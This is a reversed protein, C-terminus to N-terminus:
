IGTRIEVIKGNFTELVKQIVPNHEADPPSKKKGFQEPRHANIKKKGATGVISLNVEQQLFESCIRRLKKETEAEKIQDLYFSGAPFEIRMEKNDLIEINGHELISATPPHKTRAFSLFAGADRGTEKAAWPKGAPKIERNMDKGYEPRKQSARFPSAASEPSGELQRQLGDIRSLIDDVPILRKIYLLELLCLELAIKPFASRVVEEESSFWMRFCRHLDELSIRSSFDKLKKLDEDALDVLTTADRLSKVMMLDRLHELFSYYFRRLDVGFEYAEKLGGICGQADGSLVAEMIRYIFQRDIHGLLGELDSDEVQGGCYAIARELITQADRMSGDSERAILFLGRRSILVNENRAINELHEAIAKTPIRKFDFRLCRSIITDPIKRPETTAFIFIVHGPPEELTKLLANFASTSLMHVEDIIYIKYRDRSPRYKVNERLARIDDVGTNSAGDIEHVDMSIGETIEQCSVCSGCPHASPGAAHCNLAKALIRAVSTKGVGREGTFLFAHAVRGEKIANQLTRTVPKQGVVEEFTQPRCKRAIVKYAM